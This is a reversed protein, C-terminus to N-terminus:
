LLLLIPFSDFRILQSEPWHGVYVMSFAYCWLFSAKIIISLKLSHSASSYQKLFKSIKIEQYWLKKHHFYFEYTKSFLKACFNIPRVLLISAAIEEWIFLNLYFGLFLKCLSFITAYKFFLHSLQSIYKYLFDLTKKKKQECANANHHLSRQAFAAFRCLCFLLM